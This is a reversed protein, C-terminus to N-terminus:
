RELLIDRLTAIDADTFGLSKVYGELRERVTAGPYRGLARELGDVKADYDFAVQAGDFASTEWDRRLDEIEVGFLGNLVFALTGTRNRGLICHFDVPYNARDLFVRLAKAMGERGAADEIAAAGVAATPVCIWNVDEGLPSESMGSREHDSRLDLDTRIGLTGCWFARNADDIRTAGPLYGVSWARLTDRMAGLARVEAAIADATSVAADRTWRWGLSDRGSTVALVIRNAGKRLRLALPHSPEGAPAGNGCGLRNRVLCGNVALAWFWDGGVKLPLLCESPSEFERVFFATGGPVPCGVEACAAGSPSVVARVSQESVSLALEGAREGGRALAAMVGLSRFEDLAADSKWVKVPGGFAEDGRVIGLSGKAGAKLVAIEGELAGIGGALAEGVGKEGLHRTWEPSAQANDNLGASRFVLAQRVRRGDLGKWGGLDRVNPVRGGDLLRPTAGATAFAGRCTAGKADRVTWEYRCGVELNGITKERGSFGDQKCVCKGDARIVELAFPSHGYRWVLRVKGPATGGASCAARAAADALSSRRAETAKAYYDRRAASLLEVTSGDKPAIAALPSRAACVLAYRHPKPAALERAEAELAVMRRRIEAERPADTPYSPVCVSEYYGNVGDRKWKAVLEAVKACDDRLDARGTKGLFWRTAALKRLRAEEAQAEVLKAHVAMAQRFQPTTRFRSLNIGRRWAVANTTLITEGDIALTWEGEFLGDVALSEDDFLSHVNWEEARVRRNEPIPLPLAKALVAFEVGGDSHPVIASVEANECRMAECRAADVTVGSVRPGVGQAALFALAMLYDGEVKPHVRDAPCFSYTPDRALSKVLEDRMRAHFDVMTAGDEAARARVIDAAFGLADGFGVARPPLNTAESWDDYPTPTMYFRDAKPCERGIRAHLATLARRYDELQQRRLARQAATVNPGYLWLGCDNMGFMVAVVTPNWATVDAPFREDCGIATDGGVGANVIAIKREPYRTTYFERLYRLYGGNHTISDGLFVVTDGDVFPGHAAFAASGSVFALLASLVVKKTPAKMTFMMSFNMM